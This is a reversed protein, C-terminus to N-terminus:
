IRKNNAIKKKYGEDLVNQSVGFFVGRIRTVTGGIESVRYVRCAGKRGYRSGDGDGNLLDRAATSAVGWVISRKWPRSRRGCM